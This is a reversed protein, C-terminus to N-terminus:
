AGPDAEPAAEPACAACGRFPDDIEVGHRVCHAELDMRTFLGLRKSVTLALRLDPSGNALLVRPVPCRGCLKRHWPLSRRNAQILRCEEIARGRNYDEYYYRCDTGAPTRM